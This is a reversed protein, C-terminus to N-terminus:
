DLVQGLIQRNGNLFADISMRKKGALQLELVAIKGGIVQIMLGVKKDYSLVKGFDGDRQNDDLEAQVQTLLLRMGQWYCYAGPEYSYAQVKRQITTADDHQFHIRGDKPKILKCYTALSEEQKIRVLDESVVAPLLDLVMEAALSAIMLILETSNQLPNIIFPKQLLIDGADMRLGLYQITIGSERDGALLAAQIPTPGRYKPLLSPHINIGGLPFINLFSEKFIKGYAFCILLDCKLAQIELEVDTTLKPPQLVPISYKLAIEKTPPAILMSKRGAIADPNCLLAVVEYKALILAELLPAAISPTGAFLIRM